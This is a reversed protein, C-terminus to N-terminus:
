TIDGDMPRILIEEIVSSDSLQYATKILQAVSNPDSFRSAPLDTGEWSSTLTAGPLVATVKINEKM